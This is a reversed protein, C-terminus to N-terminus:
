LLFFLVLGIVGPLHFVSSFVITFLNVPVNINILAGVYNIIFLLVVGVFLNKFAKKILSM